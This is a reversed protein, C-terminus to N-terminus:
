SQMAQDLQKMQNRSKKDTSLHKCSFVDEIKIAAWNLSFLNLDLRPM